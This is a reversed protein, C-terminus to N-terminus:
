DTCYEGQEFVSWKCYKDMKRIRKIIEGFIYIASFFEFKQTKTSIQNM